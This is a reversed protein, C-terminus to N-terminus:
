GSMLYCDLCQTFTFPRASEGFWEDASDSGDFNFEEFDVYTPADYEFKPDTTNAM